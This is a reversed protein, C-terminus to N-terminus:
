DDRSRDLFDILFQSSHRAPDRTDHGYDQCYQAWADRGKARQLTKISRVLDEHRPSAAANASWSAPIGPAKPPTEEWALPTLPPPPAADRAASSTECGATACLAGNDGAEGSGRGRETADDSELSARTGGGDHEDFATRDEEGPAPGLRSPM